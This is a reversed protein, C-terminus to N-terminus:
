VGACVGVVTEDLADGGVPAVDDCGTIPLEPSPYAFDWTYWEHVDDFPAIGNLSQRVLPSRDLLNGFGEKQSSRRAVSSIARGGM